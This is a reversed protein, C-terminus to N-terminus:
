YQGGGGGVGTGVTVTIADSVGAGGFVGIGGVRSFVGVITGTAVGVLTGVFVIKTGDFVGNGVPVGPKVKVIM